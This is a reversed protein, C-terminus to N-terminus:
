RSRSNRRTGSLAQRIIAHQEDEPLRLAEVMGLVTCIAIYIDRLATLRSQRSSIGEATLIDKKASSWIIADFPPPATVSGQVFRRAVEVALATKGVGGIGDIMVLWTRDDPALKRLLAETELDRGVFQSYEEQPLNHIPRNENPISDLTYNTVASEMDISITKRTMTKGTDAAREIEELGHLLDNRLDLYGPQQHSDLRIVTKHNGPLVGNRRFSGYASARRVIGDSEAAFAMIPIPCSSASLSGAEAIQHIVRRHVDSVEENLPRLRREQVHPLFVGLVRRPLLFIASGENPCAILIIRRIRGLSAGNGDALMGVLFTQLVLGGQSHTVFILSDYMETYREYRTRLKDAVTRYTPVRTLLRNGVIRSNYEFTECEFINPLDQDTRLLAILQDWAKPRSALGHIFIIGTRKLSHKGGPM